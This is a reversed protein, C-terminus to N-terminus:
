VNTFHLLLSLFHLRVEDFEAYDKIPNIGINYRLEPYVVVKKFTIKREIGVFLSAHSSLREGLGQWVFGRNSDPSANLIWSGGVKLSLQKMFIRGYSLSTMISTPLIPYRHLRSNSDVYRVNSRIFKFGTSLEIKADSLLYVMEAGAFYGPKQTVTYIEPHIDIFEFSGSFVVGMRIKTPPTTDQENTIILSDPIQAFACNGVMLWFSFFIFRFLNM